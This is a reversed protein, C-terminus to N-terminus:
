GRSEEVIRAAERTARALAAWLDDCVGPRFVAIEFDDWERLYMKLRKVDRAVNCAQMNALRDAASVILALEERGTVLRLRANAKSKRIRRSERPDDRLLELCKAVLTGFETEIENINTNTEELVDHLYGVVVADPGYPKLLEVVAEVHTMYPADGYKQQAHARAAFERAKNIM